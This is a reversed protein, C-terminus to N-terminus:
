GLGFIDKLFNEDEEKEEKEAKEYDSVSEEIGDEDEDEFAGNSAKTEIKAPM